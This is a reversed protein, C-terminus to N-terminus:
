QYEGALIWALIAQYDPDSTSAFADSPAAHAIGGAAEALPKRLLRSAPPDAPDVQLSAQTFDLAIDKNTSPSLEFTGRIGGGHCAINDCGHATLISDIQTAFTAYDLVYKQGGSPPEPDTATDCGGSVGASMVGGCVWIWLPITMGKAVRM